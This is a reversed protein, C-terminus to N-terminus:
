KRLEKVYGSVAAIQEPNLQSSFPQMLNKGNTIIEIIAADDLQSLSLDIADSKGLKGDEGHCKVCYNTYLVKGDNSAAVSPNEGQTMQKRSVEAIGYAALILVLSLSALAKNSRKFGIIAVPISAFVAILKIIMLNNIEPLQTLMYVGTGLFLFSVIMEPIRFTKSVKALQEKKNAFLLITKIFYLLLFLTVVIKHTTYITYVM